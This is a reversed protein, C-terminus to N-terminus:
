LSYPAMRPGAVTKRVYMELVLVYSTATEFTDLLGVLHPHELCQLIRLEQLVQERRMLRKNVHKAAVARKSGRQDCRKAVSFRGRGLETVETYFSEFNNKWIVESGDDSAEPFISVNFTLICFYQLLLTFISSISYGWLLRCSM